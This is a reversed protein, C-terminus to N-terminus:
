KIWSGSLIDLVEVRRGLFLPQWYTWSKHRTRSKLVTSGSGVEPGRMWGRRGSTSFSLWTRRVPGLSELGQPQGDATWLIRSGVGEPLVTNAEGSQILRPQMVQESFHFFSIFYHTDRRSLLTLLFHVNVEDKGRVWHHLFEQQLPAERRRPGLPDRLPSGQWGDSLLM